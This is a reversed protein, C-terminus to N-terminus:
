TYNVKRGEKCMSPVTIKGSTYDLKRVGPTRQRMPRKQTQFTDERDLSRKSSRGGIYDEM